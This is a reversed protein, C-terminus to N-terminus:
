PIASSKRSGCCLFSNGCGIVLRRHPQEPDALLALVPEEDVQQGVQGLPDHDPQGIDLPTRHREPIQIGVKDQDIEPALESQRALGRKRM